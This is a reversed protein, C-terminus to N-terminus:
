QEGRYGAVALRGSFRYRLGQRRGGQRCFTQSSFTAPRASRAYREWEVPALVRRAFREGFRALSAEIRSVQVIDTGIGYIM